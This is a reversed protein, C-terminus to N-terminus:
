ADEQPRDLIAYPHKTAELAAIRAAADPARRRRWAALTGHLARAVVEAARDLARRRRADAAAWGIVRGLRSPAPASKGTIDRDLLQPFTAVLARNGGVIGRWRDAGVLPRSLMIELAMAEDTRAFPRAESETWVVNICVLKPLFPTAAGPSHRKARHRFAFPVAVALAAVYSLFKTGDAVVLSVDCDDEESFGGAALSGSLLVSKVCPVHRALAVAYDQAVPEWRVSALAHSRERRLSEPLIEERGAVVVFGDRLRLEPDSAAAVSVSQASAPGGVLLEALREVRVAYGRRDLLRATARVRVALTSELAAAAVRPSVQRSM